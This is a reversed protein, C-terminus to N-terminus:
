DILYMNVFYIVPLHWLYISYSQNGLNVLFKNKLIFNDSKYNKKLVLRVANVIDKVNILNIYLNKSVVKTVLNKNYNTKLLNIIKKRKDTLGFTDSIVFNFFKVNKNKQKYFNIIKGFSAKYASYLNFYNEWASNNLPPLIGAFLETNIGVFEM